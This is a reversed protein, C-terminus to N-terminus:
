IDDRGNGPKITLKFALYLSIYDKLNRPNFGTMKKLKNLQYQLTNPHIFLTDACKKLSGNSETYARLLREYYLIEGHNLNGLIRNIFVEKNVANVSQLILGLGLDKYFLYNHPRDTQIWSVCSEAQLYNARINDLDEFPDSIGFCLHISNYELFHDIILSIERILLEKDVIGTIIIVKDYYIGMISRNAFKRSLTLVDLNINDKLSFAKGDRSKGILIVHQSSQALELPIEFDTPIDNILQEIVLKNLMQHHNQTQQIWNQAILIETMKRIIDGYKMVEDPKGTIGIVGIIKRNFRIPMNIGSKAGQYSNDDSIAVTTSKELCELAGYHISGERDDVTSAIIRGESNMFNLDYDIITKLRQVISKAINQDIELM